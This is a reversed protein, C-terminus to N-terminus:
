RRKPRLELGFFEALKDATDLRLNDREGVVWRWLVVQPTGIELAIANISMGSEAIKAKLTEAITM